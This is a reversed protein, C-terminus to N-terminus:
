QRAPGRAGGRAGSPRPAPAARSDFRPRTPRTYAAVPQTQRHRERPGPRAAHGAASTACRSRRFPVPPRRVMAPRLRETRLGAPQDPMVQAGYRTAGVGLGTFGLGYAVRGRAATGTFMCFRTSSDITGGWAHSFSANALAPFTKAFQAAPKAFTAPRQTLREDTRSGYHYVADYGGWLIRRDATKRLYHFQNGADTIGHAGQRGVTALQADALSETVLAYDPSLMGRGAKEPLLVGLRPFRAKALLATRLGTYGGGVALGCRTDGTLRPHCTPADPRDLWNATPVAQRLRSRQHPDPLVHSM